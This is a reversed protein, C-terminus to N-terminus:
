FLAARLAASKRTTRVQWSGMCHTPQCVRNKHANGQDGPGGSWPPNRQHPLNAPPSEPLAGEGPDEQCARWEESHWVPSGVM